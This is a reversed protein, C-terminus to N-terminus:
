RNRRTFFILAFFPAGILATISGVPLEIPSAISRAILDSIILFSGGILASIPISIIHNPGVLKRTIHPVVLGVFGIIGCTAVATATLVSTLIMIEIKLKKVNVGLSHADDEGFTLIDLQKSRTYLYITTILFIPLSIFFDQWNKLVLSGASFMIIERTEEINIIMILSIIASLFLSLIMGTLVITETSLNADISSSFKIVLYITLLAGVFAFVPTTLSGFVSIKLVIVITAALGAGSSVGLTFPSALPNKLMSQMSVGSISLCSGVVVAVLVRPLRIDIIITKVFNSTLVDKISVNTSGILLGLFISFIFTVIILLVKSKM